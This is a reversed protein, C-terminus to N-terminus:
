NVYVKAIGSDTDHAQASLLGNSVAANLTPKTFDFCKIYRNKEYIKGKQDTVRMYITCNESIEIYMDETVDTWSGNQSIKAEVTQVEFNGTKKTDEVALMVKTGNSYWGSQTTITLKVNPIIYECDAYNASCAPCDKNIAYQSCKDTCICDTKEVEIPVEPTEEAVEGDSAFVSTANGSNMLFAGVPMTFLVGSLLLSVIAKSKLKTKM